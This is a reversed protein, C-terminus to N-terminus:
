KKYMRVLVGTHVKSSASLLICYLIDSIRVDRSLEFGNSEATFNLGKTQLRRFAGVTNGYTNRFVRFYFNEGQLKVADLKM